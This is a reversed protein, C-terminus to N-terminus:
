NTIKGFVIDFLVMFVTLAQYIAFSGILPGGCASRTEKMTVWRPPWDVRPDRM